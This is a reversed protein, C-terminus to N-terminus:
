EGSELDDPVIRIPPVKSQLQKLTTKDQLYKVVQSVPAKIVDTKHDGTLIKEYIQKGNADKLLETKEIYEFNHEAFENIEANYMANIYAFNKNYFTRIWTGPQCAVFRPTAVIVQLVINDENIQAYHM